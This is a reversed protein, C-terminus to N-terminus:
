NHRNVLVTNTAPRVTSDVWTPECQSLRSLLVDSSTQFELIKVEGSDNSLRKVVDNFWFGTGMLGADDEFSVLKTM